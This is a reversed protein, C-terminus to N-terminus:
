IVQRRIRSSRGNPRTSRRYGAGAILGGKRTRKTQQPLMQRDGVASPM